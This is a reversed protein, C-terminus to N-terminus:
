SGGGADESSVFDSNHLDFPFKRQSQRALGNVTEARNSAPSRTFSNMSCVEGEEVLRM